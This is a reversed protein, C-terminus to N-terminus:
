LALREARAARSSREHQASLFPAIMLARHFDSSEIDIVDILAQAIQQRPEASGFRVHDTELFQFAAVLVMCLLDGITPRANFIRAALIAGSTGLFGIAAAGVPIVFWLKFSFIEMGILCEVILNASAALVCTIGMSALLLLHRM